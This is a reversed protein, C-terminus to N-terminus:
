NVLNNMPTVFDLFEDEEIDNQSIVLSSDSLLINVDSTIIAVVQMLDNKLKEITKELFLDTNYEIGCWIGAESESFLFSIDFKSIQHEVSLQDVEIDDESSNNTAERDAKEFMLLVKFLQASNVGMKNLDDILLEYPYVQHEFAELTNTKVKQLLDVFRDHSEFQNRLALANIYFGIQDELDRHNRGATPAGIIIDKQGTHKYLLTNVVALMVIFLSVNQEEQIKSLKHAHEKEILFSVSKGSFSQAPKREFDTPLLQIPTDSDFKSLWYNKHGEFKEGQLEEQQWAVFDKYQIILSPLPNSEKTLYAEYLASIEKKLILMSWGDFIIHHITFLFVYEDDNMRVLRVKLLPGTELNFLTDADQRALLKVKEEKNEEEKFDVFEIKFNLGEPSHVKAKPEDNVLVFTTRLSEHREILTKFAKDLAHEDIKAKFIFAGPINYARKGEDIQSLAWLGKQAYSLDYYERPAIPEIPRYTSVSKQRILTAMARVTPHDFFDKLSMQKGTEKFLRSVVRTATLSHGGLEFFSNLVGVKKLGLIESWISAIREELEDAPAEYSLKEYLLEEPRPLSKKDVKGNLNLPFEDLHVYYSPHMYDPLYSKLHERLSTEQIQEQEVVYYCVLTDEQDSNKVPMVVVQKINQFTMIVKEVESLEVRNGRIKIQSDQRGIFEISDNELYRGLDGTRYLIDEYDNHLPNQIFRDRTQEEDRYYGKSRFPTKIYIEGVNSLEHGNLIVIATNGIPKGLPIISNPEEVEGIRNFIKALTTETPGYLNVLETTNGVVSRWAIVDRGYLAEGALLIYQLQTVQEVATHDERLVQTILRFVSPVMHMLTIGSSSIWQILKRPELRIGREPICLTGGSLLPVFIDRLSVDFSIPALQSVKVREDLGFEGMEWHIFHSLGKHCGEIIKPQGTSGSTYLLYNSDDGNVEITVKDEKWIGENKQVLSRGEVTALTVVHDSGSVLVIKKLSGNAQSGAYLSLIDDVNKEDTIIISPQVKELIHETRKVPYALELPMFVAGAKNIGLISAVYNIGSELYVGVVDGKKTEANLLNHAIRNSYSRLAGYRINKGTEEIATREAFAESRQDIVSHIVKKNM